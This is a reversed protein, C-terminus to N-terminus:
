RETMKNIFKNIYNDNMVFSLFKIGCIGLALRDCSNVDKWRSYVIPDSKLFALFLDNVGYEDKAYLLSSGLYELLYRNNKVNRVKYKDPIDFMNNVKHTDHVCVMYALKLLTDCTVDQNKRKSRRIHDKICETQKYLKNIKKIGKKNQTNVLIIVENLYLLDDEYDKGSLLSTILECTHQVLYNLQAYKVDYEIFPNEESSMRYCIDPIDNLNDIIFKLIYTIFRARFEYREPAYFAEDFYRSKRKFKKNINIEKLTDGFIKDHVIYKTSKVDNILFLLKALAVKYMEIMEQLEGEDSVTKKPKKLKVGKKKDLKNVNKTLEKIDDGPEDYYTEDEEDEDVEYGTAEQNTNIMTIIGNVLYTFIDSIVAIGRDTYEDVDLNDMLEYYVSESDVEIDNINDIDSLSIVSYQYKQIDDVYNDLIEIMTEFSIEDYNSMIDDIFEHNLNYDFLSKFKEKLVNHVSTIYPVNDNPIDLGLAKLIYLPNLVANKVHKKCFSSM